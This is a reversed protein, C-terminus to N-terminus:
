RESQGCVNLSAQLLHDIEEHVALIERVTQAISWQQYAIQIWM